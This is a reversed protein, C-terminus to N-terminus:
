RTECLFNISFLDAGNDDRGLHGGESIAEIYFFFTSGITTSNIGQFLARVAALRARGTSYSASRVTVQFTPKKIPLEKNPQPGGTEYITVNTVPDTPMYSKFLDTGVTGIGHSAMYAALDDLM